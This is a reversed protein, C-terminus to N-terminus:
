AEGFEQPSEYWGAKLPQTRSRRAERQQTAAQGKANQCWTATDVSNCNKNSPRQVEDVPDVAVTRAKMELQFSWASKAGNRWVETVKIDALDTKSVKAEVTMAFAETVKWINRWLVSAHKFGLSTKLCIRGPAKKLWRRQYEARLCNLAREKKTALIKNGRCPFLHTIYGRMNKDVTKVSYAKYHSHAILWSQIYQVILQCFSNHSSLLTSLLTYLRSWKQLYMHLYPLAKFMEPPICPDPILPKGRPLSFLHKPSLVPLSIKWQRKIDKM